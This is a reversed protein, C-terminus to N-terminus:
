ERGKNILDGDVGAAGANGNGEDDKRPDDLASFISKEGFLSDIASNFLSREIYTSRNTGGIKRRNNEIASPQQQKTTNDADNPPDSRTM